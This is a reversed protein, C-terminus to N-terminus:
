LEVEEYYQLLYRDDARRFRRVLSRGEFNGIAIKARISEQYTPYLFTVDIVVYRRYNTAAFLPQYPEPIVGTRGARVDDPAFIIEVSAVTAVFVFDSTEYSYREGGGPERYSIAPAQFVHIAEHDFPSGLSIWRDRNFEAQSVGNREALRAAEGDPPGLTGM